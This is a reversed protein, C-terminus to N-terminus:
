TNKGFLRRLRDIDKALEQLIPDMRGSEKSRGLYELIFALFITLVLAVAFGLLVAKRKGTKEGFEPPTARNLVEIDPIEKEAEIRAIEFQTLITTLLTERTQIDRQLRSFTTQQEPSLFGTSGTAGSFSLNRNNKKFKVLATEASVLSDQISALREEIFGLQNAIREKRKERNYSQLQDIYENAVAAAILSDPSTVEITIVGTNEASFETLGQLANIGAQISPVEFFDLLSTSDIKGDRKKYPYKKRLIRQSTPNSELIDLYLSHRRERRMGTKLDLYDQEEAPLITVEATFLATELLAFIYSSLVCILVGWFIMWRRRVIVEIYDLLDLEEAPAIEAQEPSIPGQNRETSSM